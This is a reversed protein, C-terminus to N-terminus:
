ICVDISLFNSGKALIESIPHRLVAPQAASTLV